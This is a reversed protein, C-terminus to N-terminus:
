SYLIKEKVNIIFWLSIYLWMVFNSKIAFLKTRQFRKTLKRNNQAHKLWCYKIGDISQIKRIIFTREKDKKLMSVVRDDEIEIQIPNLGGASEISQQVSIIITEVPEQM